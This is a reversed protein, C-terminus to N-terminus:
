KVWIGNADVYFVDDVYANTLMRGDDPIFYYWNGNVQNWGEYMEGNSAMCYWNGNHDYWGTVMRGDQDFVYWKDNLNLWGGHQMRGDEHYYYTHGDIDQWGTVMKGEANFRYWENKIQVGSNKAITGDPYKFYWENYSSIWGVQSNTDTVESPAAGTYVQNQKIELEDSESWGSNKINKTQESAIARVKFSYTGKETMYPYCEHYNKKLNSVTKIVSNGRYVRLEYSGAQEVKDWRALGRTTESWYVDFPDELQGGVTKLAINVVLTDRDKKSAGLFEAGEVSVKSKDYSGSFYSDGLATLTVKIKPVDGMEWHDDSPERTWVADEIDYKADSPVRVHADDEFYGTSLGFTSEGDEIKIDVRLRVRQVVDKSDAYVPFAMFIMCLCCLWVLIKRKKEM